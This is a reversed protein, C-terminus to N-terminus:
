IFLCAICLKLGVRILGRTPSIPESLTVQFPRKLARMIYYCAHSALAVFFEITFHYFEAFIHNLYHIKLM